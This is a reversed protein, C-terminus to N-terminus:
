QLVSKGPGLGKSSVGNGNEPITPFARV